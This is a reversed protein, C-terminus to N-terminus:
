KEIGFFKYSNKYITTELEEKNEQRLSTLMDLVFRIKTPLNEKGREPAPSLYPSDTEIMINKLPINKATEQVSQANKFTLIGSFSIMADPSFALLKKAYDLDEAYCHMVFDKMNEEKLIEFIDEKSERNHIIIPLNYKKALSIQARFFDKQIHIIEEKSISTKIRPPLRYYDLWCEWIAVIKEPSKKVLEELIQISKDKKEKLDLTDTPHIGISAFIFDFEKALHVSHKSTELNTWVSLIHSLLSDKKVAELVEKETYDKALYPHAHTDFLM